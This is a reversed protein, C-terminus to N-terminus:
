NAAEQRVQAAYRRYTADLAPQACAPKYNARTDEKAHSDRVRKFTQLHRSLFDLWLLVIIAWTKPM